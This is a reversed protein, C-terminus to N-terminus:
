LGHISIEISKMTSSELVLSIVETMITISFSVFIVWKIGRRYSSVDTIISKKFMPKWFDMIESLLEWNIDSNQFWIYLSIFTYIYKINLKMSAVIFGTFNNHNDFLYLKFFNINNKFIL